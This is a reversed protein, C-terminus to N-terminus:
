TLNWKLFFIWHIQDSFEDTTARIVQFKKYHFKFFFFELFHASSLHDAAPAATRAPHLKPWKPRSWRRTEEFFKRGGGGRRRGGDFGWFFGFCIVQVGSGGPAGRESGACLSFFARSTEGTVRSTSARKFSKLSGCVIRTAGSAM